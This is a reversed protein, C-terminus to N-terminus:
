IVDNSQETHEFPFTMTTVALSIPSPRAPVQLPTRVRLGWGQQLKEILERDPTRTTPPGKLFKHLFKPALVGEKAKGSGCTFLLLILNYTSVKRRLLEGSDVCSAAGLFRVQDHFEDPAECRM